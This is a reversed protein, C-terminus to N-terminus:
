SLEMYCKNISLKTTFKVIDANVVSKQLFLTVASYICTYTTAQLIILKNVVLVFSMCTDLTTTINNHLYYLKKQVLLLCTVYFILFIQPTNLSNQHFLVFSLM